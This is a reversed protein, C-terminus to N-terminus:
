FGDDLLYDDLLYDGPFGIRGDEECLLNDWDYKGDLEIGSQEAYTKLYQRLEEYQPQEDYKLKYAKWSWNKRLHLCSGILIINGWCDM